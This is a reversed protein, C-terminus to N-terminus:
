GPSTAPLAVLRSGVHLIWFPLNGHKSVMVIPIRPAKLAQEAVHRAGEGHVADFSAGRKEVYHGVTNVAAASGEVARAVTTENWVDAAVVEIRGVPALAELFSAQEPRRGAVRVPTGDAALRKVIQRGLFGSGGFVTVRVKAM